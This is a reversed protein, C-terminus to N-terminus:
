SALSAFAPAHRARGTAPVKLRPELILAQLHPGSYPSEFPEASKTDFGFRSYYQPDGLVFVIDAGRSEAVRLGAHVLAAGIGMDRYDAAVAMPALAMGAVTQGDAEVEMRSFLVHGIILQEDSAVLSIKRASEGKRM